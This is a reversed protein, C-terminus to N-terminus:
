LPSSKQVPNLTHLGIDDAKLFGMSWRMVGDFLPESITTVTDGRKTVGIFTRM